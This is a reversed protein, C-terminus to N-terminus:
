KLSPPLMADAKLLDCVCPICLNFKQNIREKNNYSDSHQIHTISFGIWHPQIMCSSNILNFLQVSSALAHCPSCTSIIGYFRPRKQREVEEDEGWGKTKHSMLPALCKLNVDQCSTLSLSSSATVSLTGNHQNGLYLSLTLEPCTCKNCIATDNVQCFCRLLFPNNQKVTQYLGDHRPLCPM